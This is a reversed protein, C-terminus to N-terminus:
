NYKSVISRVSLHSRESHWQIILQVIKHHGAPRRKRGTKCLRTDTILNHYRLAKTVPAESSRRRLLLGRRCLRRINGTAKLIAHCCHSLLGCKHRWKCSIWRVTLVSTGAHHGERSQMPAKRDDVALRDCGIIYVFGVSYVANCSTYHLTFRLYCSTKLFIAGAVDRGSGVRRNKYIKQSLGVQGSGVRM